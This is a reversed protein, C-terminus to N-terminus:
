LRSRFGDTELRSNRGKTGQTYGTHRYRGTDSYCLYLIKKSNHLLNAINMKQIDILQAILKQYDTSGYGGM